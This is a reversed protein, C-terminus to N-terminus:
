NNRKENKNEVPSAAGVPPEYMMPKLKLAERKKNLHKIILEAAKIPDSEFAFNAGVINELGKTVFETIEKGGLIPFPIGLVTYIGSAVAYFGISVAKESMWEPAAAAVPLDSIDEGLGGESVVNCLTTLIRSIDVCSGMHLVPPCGVAECIELLGKGAYEKAAEPVLLGAKADAMASCGTVVVLVDNKILEKALTIHAWDYKIKPNNCGVIGVVGRIRGAIIADNLPRYTSRYKGGLMKFVYESTFGAVLEMKEKPINVLEKKRNKYNEIAMRVIKKAIPLAEEESFEVHEVGPFKAKPSTSIVKTHFCSQLKSLAPMVCQVDVLMLDVVGTIVALEQQLFNGALPIGHRMLIENATCCIGALNIGKAGYQKALEILEKDTAASVIVDSLTPEHGHVVLNVEDEKLVGLNSISRIPEPIGFIVDSLDTAIMSGGWGDGLSARIGQKILNEHDNDVGIHTRHMIEVIERDIGRPTFKNKRWIEQRKVPARHTFQLEGHQQGFEAFCKEAVDHAIEEIKRNETKVNLENALDYLKQKGKISYGKTKGESTALLTHAVDRGHDSHSAAGAAIMRVLNRAAIIDATAGCIGEKAGEGFPDIRCPGMVCNRCCIGLEGFGCQPIMKEYRDWATEIGKKEAVKKMEQTAKDM